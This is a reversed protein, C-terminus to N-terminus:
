RGTEELARAFADALAREALVGALERRYDAGAHIDSEPSVADRVMRAAAAFDGQAESVDVVLATPDVGISVTRATSVRRESDLTVMAGVGCLAYDGSRRALEVFATGTRPPVRPFRAAVVLDGPSLASEMPGTIFDRAAVVRPAAGARAVEVSGELLMLVAPIESAPDAHALAGCLTGRNRVAPHAVLRLAQALLPCASRVSADAEVRAHRALAGARIDGNVELTDLGAVSNIDVLHAPSSLRMNLIPILSQGGALVKGDGGADALAALADEVTTPATYAFPAPKM